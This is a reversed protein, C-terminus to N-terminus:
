WHSRLPSVLSLIEKQWVAEGDRFRHTTSLLYQVLIYSHSIIIICVFLHMMNAHLTMPFFLRWIQGSAISPGWSAGLDYLTCVSPMGNMQGLALSFGFEAIQFLSMKWIFSDGDFGPFVLDAFSDDVIAASVGGRIGNPVMPAAMCMFASGLGGSSAFQLANLMTFSSAISEIMFAATSEICSVRFLCFSMSSQDYLLITEYNKTSPKYEEVRDVYCVEEVPPSTLTTESTCEVFWSM